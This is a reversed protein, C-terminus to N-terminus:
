APELRTVALQAPEGDLKFEESADSQAPVGRRLERSLTEARIYDGFEAVVRELRPGGEYWTVIKEEIQYDASKRLTQIRHVVERAQGERV